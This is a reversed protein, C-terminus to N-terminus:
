IPYSAEFMLAGRPAVLLLCDKTPGSDWVGTPTENSVFLRFFLFLFGGGCFCRLSVVRRGRVGGGVSHSIASCPSWEEGGM